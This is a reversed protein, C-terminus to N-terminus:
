REWPIFTFHYDDEGGYFAKIHISLSYGGIGVTGEGQVPVSSTRARAQMSFNIKNGRVRYTGKAYYSNDENLANENVPHAPVGIVATGDQYFRLMWPQSTTQRTEYLGDYRITALTGTTWVGVAALALVGIVALVILSRKSRWKAAVNRLWAERDQRVRTRRGAKAEEQLRKEENRKTEAEARLREAEARRKAEAEAKLREDEARVHAELKARLRDAEARQREAEAARQRKEEEGRALALAEAQKRQEEEQRKAEAQQRAREAEARERTAAEEMEKREEPSVWPRDLADCINQCFREIKAKADPSNVDRHRFDRWDLWQRKGVISLVPDSRLRADDELGPVRIYIIPFVLDDRDLASERDLFAELEFRCYRSQVVTPTIIPIFFVSQAVAKKIETEWQTGSAIMETDQWLKFTAKSRGLQGRLEKQIRDRFASLAGHSDEDDDRSYSFFGVLEPLDALIAM